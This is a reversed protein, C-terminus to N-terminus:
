ASSSANWLRSTGSRAILKTGCGTISGAEVPDIKSGSRFSRTKLLRARKEDGIRETPRFWQRESDRTVQESSHRFALDSTRYTSLEDFHLQCGALLPPQSSLRGSYGLQRRAGTDFR